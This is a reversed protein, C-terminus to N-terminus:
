GATRGRQQAFRAWEADWQDIRRRELRARLTRGGVFPVIAASAGVLAGILAARLHAQAPTTPRTVLRGEADTWVSVPTGTASGPRVRVQGTHSTGDPAAWRVKAWVQDSSATGTQGAFTGPAKAVLRAEVQRWEVRERALTGEVSRSAALGAFVGVLATLLWAGLVVWAEVKDARRRLPNRRWRWLWVKAGRFAM